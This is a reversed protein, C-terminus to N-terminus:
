RRQPTARTVLSWVLLGLALPIMVYTGIEGPPTGLTEIPRARGIALRAVYEIVMLALGFPILAQYRVLAVVYVLGMLAQALGWLAFVFVVADAAAPDFAQLPITAISQAGGDPLLLHALSRALTVVVLLGFAAVIGPHARHSADLVPPLLTTV